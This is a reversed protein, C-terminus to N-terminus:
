EKHAKAANWAEKCFAKVTHCNHFQKDRYWEEFPDDKPPDPIQGIDLWHTPASCSAGGNMAFWNGHVHYIQNKWIVGGSVVKVREGEEPLREKVSVWQM